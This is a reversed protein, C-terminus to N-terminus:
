QVARIWADDHNKTSDRLRKMDTMDFVTALDTHNERCYSQAEDWTKNETIFHYEYLHCTFFSWHGMVILLFLSWQM